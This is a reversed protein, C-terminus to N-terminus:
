KGSFSAKAADFASKLKTEIGDNMAKTSRLEEYADPYKEKVTALIHAEFQPIQDNPLEDYYGNTGAFIVIVQDIVDYPTALGQKLLETLKQGRLLQLQTAKDLDSAFQAFAAVDRYQAMELKIKGAVSKM